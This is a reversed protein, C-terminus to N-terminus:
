KRNYRNRITYDYTVSATLLYYYYDSRGVLMLCVCYTVSVM